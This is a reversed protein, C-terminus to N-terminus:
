HLGPPSTFTVKVERPSISVVEVESPLEWHLPLLYEGEKLGELKIFLTIDSKDFKSLLAKKGRVKISVTEPSIKVRGLERSSTLIKVPVEKFKKEILGAPLFRSQTNVYYWLISALVLSFLKLWLNRFLWKM